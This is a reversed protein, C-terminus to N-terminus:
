EGGDIEHGTKKDIVLISYKTHWIIDKVSESM